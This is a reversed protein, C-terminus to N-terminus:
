TRDDADARSSRGRKVEARHHKERLRRERSGTTPATPRRPPEVRLGDAIRGALRELAIERNRAQSRDSGSGTRVVPGFRGVLRARQRPGLAASRAIDFTV